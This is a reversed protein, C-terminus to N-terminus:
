SAEISQPVKVSAILKKDIVHFGALTFKIPQQNIHMLFNCLVNTYHGDIDHQSTLLENTMAIISDM